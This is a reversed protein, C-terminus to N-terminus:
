KVQVPTPFINKCIFGAATANILIKIAAHSPYIEQLIYGDMNNSDKCSEVLFQLSCADNTLITMDDACTPAQIGLRGIRTGKGSIQIRDLLGNNYVKFLDASLVGGQRVGQQNIYTSSLQGQWKVATQSEHHLNNIM